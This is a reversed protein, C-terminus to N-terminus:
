QLAGDMNSTGTGAGDGAASPGQVTNDIWLTNELWWAFRDQLMADYADLWEHIKPIRTGDGDTKEPQWGKSKLQAIVDGEIASPTTGSGILALPEGVATADFTGPSNSTATSTGEYSAGSFSYSEVWMAFRDATFQVLADDLETLRSTRGFSPQATWGLAQGETLGGGSGTGAWTGLGSGSVILGGGSIADQWDQWATSIAQTLASLWEDQEPTVNGSGDKFLPDLAALFEDKLAQQSPAAM